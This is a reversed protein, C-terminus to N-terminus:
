GDAAEETLMSDDFRKIWYTKRMLEVYGLWRLQRPFSYKEFVHLTKFKFTFRKFIRIGLRFPVFYYFDDEPELFEFHLIKVGISIGLLDFTVSM